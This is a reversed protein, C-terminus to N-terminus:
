RVSCLSTTISLPTQSLSLRAALSRSPCGLTLEGSIPAKSYTPLKGAEVGVLVRVGVLVGVGIAVLVGPGVLVSVGVGVLVGVGVAVLM